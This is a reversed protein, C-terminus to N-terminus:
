QPQAPIEWRKVALKDDVEVELKARHEGDVATCHLMGDAPRLLFAAPGCDIEVGPATKERVAPLLLNELKAKALLPPDLHWDTANLAADFDITASTTVDGAVLQCRIKRQADLFRLPEDGCRVVVAGGLSKGLEASLSSDLTAVVAAAGDHWGTDFNAKSSAKDVSTVTVDLAYTKKGDVEVQCTFVKGPKAEVDAPCAVKTAHLGMATTRTRILDEFGKTDVKARCGALAAVLSGAFVGSSGPRM